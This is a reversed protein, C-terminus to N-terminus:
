RFMILGRGKLHMVTEAAWEDPINVWLSGHPALVRICGDLWEYTFELYDGRPMRDNWDAYAVDWNFPPDAYVLDACGEPLNGLVERCDGIFLRTEPNELEFTPKMTVM